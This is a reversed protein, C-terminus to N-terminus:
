YYYASSNWHQVIAKTFELSWEVANEAKNVIELDVPLEDIFRESDHQASIGLPNNPRVVRAVIGGLKHITEVENPFRVDPVFVIRKYMANESANGQMYMIERELCKTWVDERWVKRFMETGCMQLFRRPSIGWFEDVKEKLERDTLQEQSFFLNAIAKLRDAFHRVVTENPLVRDEIFSPASDKGSGARGTIGIVLVKGPKKDAEDALVKSSKEVFWAYDNRPASSLNIFRNTAWTTVESENFLKAM